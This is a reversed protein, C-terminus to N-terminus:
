LFWRNPIQHNFNHIYSRLKILVREHLQPWIVKKLDREHLQLRPHQAFTPKLLVKNREMLNYIKLHGLTRKLMLALLSVSSCFHRCYLWQLRKVTWKERQPLLFAWPLLSCISIKLRQSQTSLLGWQATGSRGCIGHFLTFIAWVKLINNIPLFSCALSIYWPNATSANSSSKVMQIVAKCIMQTCSVM